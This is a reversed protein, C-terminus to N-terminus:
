LNSVFILTMFETDSWIHCVSIAEGGTGSNHCQIIFLFTIKNIIIINCKPKGPYSINYIWLNIRNFM